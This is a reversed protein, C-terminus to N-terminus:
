TSAVTSNEAAMTTMEINPARKRALSLRGSEIASTPLRSTMATEMMPALAPLRSVMTLVRSVKPMPVPSARLFM